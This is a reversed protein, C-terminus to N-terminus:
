PAVIAQDFRPDVLCSDNPLGDGDVDHLAVAAGVSSIWASIEHLSPHVPRVTRPEGAGPPEALAFRTFAFRAALQQREAESARPLRAFGYAVLVLLLAAIRVAHRRLWPAPSKWFTDNM